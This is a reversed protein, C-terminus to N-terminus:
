SAHHPEKADPNPLHTEGVSAARPRSLLGGPTDSRCILRMVIVRAIVFGLLCCLLRPWHGHGIMLYFGTLVLSMRVILSGVFWVAPNRSAVGKRVTWWLGGFFVAGLVFGALGALLLTVAENM